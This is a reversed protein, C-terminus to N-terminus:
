APLSWAKARAPHRQPHRPTQPHLRHPGTQRGKRRSQAKSLARRHRPELPKRGGGGHLPRDEGPRPRWAPSKRIASDIDRDLESLEAQLLDLHRDIAKLVRPQGALRRRNKEAVIMEIVQRRRAVLEGLAQAEADAVRRAPPRIAEAFHAIAAADLRDTKALKGTSRAFDRIQRPNIVALPLHAAALASAVVTEYGGTAELAILAPSLARLREVLSALGEDDRTVAFTEGSPRICIDLRDKSVDIGVFVDMERGQVHPSRWAPSGRVSADIEADIESLEKELAAILRALSKPIRMAAFRKERNREAVIMEIIQRHRAVLDVLLQTAEDPLERLDPKTAEVFRAIMGADIPVTKARRGLAQAFHRVRAPNVWVVPLSAGGLAAAM